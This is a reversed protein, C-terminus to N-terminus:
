GSPRAVGEEWPETLRPRSDACSDRDGSRGHWGLRLVCAQSPVPDGVLDEALTRGVQDQDAPAIPVDVDCPLVRADAQEESPQRGEAPQDQEVPAARPGGVGEREAGQGRPLREGFVQLRDLVLDAGLPRRDHGLQVRARGRQQEGPGPRFAGAGKDQYVGRGPEDGAVVVRDPNRGFPHLRHHVLEVLQPAGVGHGRQQYRAPGAVPAEEAPEGLALAGAGAGLDGLHEQARHGLDVYPRHQRQHLCRRQDQVPAPEPQHGDRM